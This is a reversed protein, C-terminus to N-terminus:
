KEKTSRSYGPRRLVTGGELLLNRVSGYSLGHRAALDGITAGQRYGAGLKLILQARAEGRIMSRTPRAAGQRRLVMGGELLLNRVSGYSLGHRAALARITAGQHYGAGLKLILQARAEGRLIIM